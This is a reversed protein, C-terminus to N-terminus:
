MWGDFQDKAKQFLNRKQEMQISALKGTEMVERLHDAVANLSKMMLWIKERGETDRVPSRQWEDTYRAKLTEFAEMYIVNEAVARAIEARNMEMRLTAEDNLNM